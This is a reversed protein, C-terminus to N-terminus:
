RDARRPRQAKNQLLAALFRKEDSDLGGFVSELFGMAASSEDAASGDCLTQVLDRLVTLDNPELVHFRHNVLATEVTM